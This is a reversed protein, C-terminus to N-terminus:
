QRIVEHTHVTPEAVRETIHQETREVVPVVKERHIVPQIDNLVNMNVKDQFIPQKEVVGAQSPPAPEDFHQDVRNLVTRDIEQYIHPQIDAEWRDKVTESVTPQGVEYTTVQTPGSVTRTNVGALTDQTANQSSNM